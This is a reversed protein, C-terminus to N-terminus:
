AHELNNWPTRQLRIAHVPDKQRHAHEDAVTTATLMGMWVLSWGLGAIGARRLLSPKKVNAILASEEAAAVAKKIKFFHGIFAVGTIAKIASGYSNIFSTASPYKECYALPGTVKTTQTGTAIAEHERAFDM